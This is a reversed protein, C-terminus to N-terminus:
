KRGIIASYAPVSVTGAAYVTGDDGTLETETTFDVAANTYNFLVTGQSWERQWSYGTGKVADGLPYGISYDFQTDWYIRGANQYNFNRDTRGTPVCCYYMGLALRKKQEIDADTDFLGGNQFWVELTDAQFDTMRQEIESGELYDGSWGFAGKEYVVGDVLARQATRISDTASYEGVQNGIVRYGAAKLGNVVTTAFALFATFYADEDAYTGGEWSEEFRTPYWWYDLVVGDYGKGSLRALIAALYAAAYGSAGIDVYYNSADETCIAGEADKLWGDAADITAYAVPGSQGASNADETTNKNMLRYYAYCKASPNVAKIAAPTYGASYLREWLMVDDRKVILALLEAATYGTRTSYWNGYNNGKFAYNTPVVGGYWAGSGGSPPEISPPRKPLKRMTKVRRIERLHKM